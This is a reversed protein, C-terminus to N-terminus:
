LSTLEVLFESNGTDAANKAQGATRQKSITHNNDPGNAKGTWIHNRVLHDVEYISVLKGENSVVDICFSTANDLITATAGGHLSGMM